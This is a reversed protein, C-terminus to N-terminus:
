DIRETIHHNDAWKGTPLNMPLEKLTPQQKNYPEQDISHGVPQPITRKLSTEQSIESIKTM